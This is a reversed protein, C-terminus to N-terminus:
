PCTKIGYGGIVGRFSRDYKANVLIGAVTEGFRGLRVHHGLTSRVHYHSPHALLDCLQLGAINDKKTRFKLNDSRVHSSFVDAPVFRTGNRKTRIFAEQLLRDSKGRRSEPMLDGIADNRRLFQVYKELIIEMLYHYPHRQEWHVQQQMLHKDILATIVTYPTATMMEQVLEDFLRRRENENLLGFVSKRRVIDSRHLNVPIDPDQQFVRFKLDNMTPVLIDRVDDLHIITASLSLYRHNEQVTHTLDDTGHEDLYLRYM